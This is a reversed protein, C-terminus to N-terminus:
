EIRNGKYNKWVIFNKWWSSYWEDDYDEMKHYEWFSLMYDTRSKSVRKCLYIGLKKKYWYYFEIQFLLKLQDLM